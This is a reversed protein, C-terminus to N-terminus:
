RPPTADARPAGATLAHVLLAAWGTLLLLGGIPTVAGLWRAGSLALVWLSGTFVLVGGAFGGGAVHLALRAPAREALLAVGLLAVAHIQGYRTGTQFIVLLEPSLTEKLAHAGFAGGAVTLFGSAASLALWTRQM